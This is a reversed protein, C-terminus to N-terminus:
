NNYFPICPHSLNEGCFSRCKVPLLGIEVIIERAFLVCLLSLWPTHKGSAMSLSPYESLPVGKQKNTEQNM